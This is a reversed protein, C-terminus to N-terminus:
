DYVVELGLEKALALEARAGSSEGATKMMVIVDCRRLIALDGELWTEDPCLGDFFATNLHPTIVAYGARWYKIAVQEASRINELLTVSNKPRYPGAIYAVKM